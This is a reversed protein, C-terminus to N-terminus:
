LHINLNGIDDVRASQGQKFIVCSSPEEIVAPGQITAHPALQSRQYVPLAQMKGDIYVNRTPTAGGAGLQSADAHRVLGQWGSAVNAQVRLNVLVIPQDAPVARVFADFAEAVDRYALDLAQRPQDM